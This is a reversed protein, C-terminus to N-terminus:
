RANLVTPQKPETAKGGVCFFVLISVHDVVASYRSMFAHLCMSPLSKRRCVFFVLLAVVLIGAVLILVVALLGGVVGGVIAGADTDHLCSLLTVVLLHLIYKHAASISCFM